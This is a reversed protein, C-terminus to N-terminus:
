QYSPWDIKAWIAPTLSQRQQWYKIAPLGSIHHRLMAQINKVVRKGGVYCAGYSFPIIYVSPSPMYRSLKDKALTDAEINLMVDQTLVTPVGTDQHGKVHALTVQFGSNSLLNCTGSLLDYHPESVSTKRRNWLRHLVLKGDCALYFDPKTTKTHPFCHHLFLLCTYIGALESRFSSHDDEQGPTFGEGIVRNTPHAGEIIWAVSGQNTKFSGDSVAYGCGALIDCTLEEWNGIIHHNVEWDSVFRLSSFSQLGSLTPSPPQIPDHGTLTLNGPTVLVSARRLLSLEPAIARQGHTHYIRRRTRQPV